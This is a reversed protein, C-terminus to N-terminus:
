AEIDLFPIASLLIMLRVSPESFVTPSHFMITISHRFDAQRKAFM